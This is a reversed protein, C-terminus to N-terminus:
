SNSGAPSVSEYLKKKLEASIPAQQIYARAKDPDISLWVEALNVMEQQRRKPDSMSAIMDAATQPSEPTIRSAWASVTSDRFNGQVISNIWDTLQTLNDEPWNKVLSQVATEQLEGAPFSKVWEAASEPSSRVMSPILSVVVDEQFKGPQMLELAWQAAQTADQSGIANLVSALVRDRLEPDQIQSAWDRADQPNTNAWNAAVHAILDDRETGAPMDVALTMASIPSSTATEYALQSLFENRLEGEPMQKAWAIAEQPSKGAWAAAVRGIADSQIAGAPQAIVWDAAANSNLAAWRQLLRNRLEEGASSLHKKHWLFQIVNPLDEDAVIATAKILREERTAADRAAHIGEIATVIDRLLQSEPIEPQSISDPDIGAVEVSQHQVEPSESSAELAISSSPRPAM